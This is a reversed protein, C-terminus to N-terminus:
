RWVGTVALLLAAQAGFGTLFALTRLGAIGAAYLLYYAARAFFYTAAAGAALPTNGMGLASALLALPAFVVLNEVTNAHARWARRAWPSQADIDGPQPNGLTRAIGLTFFRDVVYPMWLCGTLVITAILWAITSSDM